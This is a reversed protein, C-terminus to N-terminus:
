YQWVSLTAEFRGMRVNKRVNETDIIAPAVIM